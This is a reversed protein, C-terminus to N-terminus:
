VRHRRVPRKNTGAGARASARVCRRALARACQRACLTMGARARVSAFVADHRRPCVSARACLTRPAAIEV